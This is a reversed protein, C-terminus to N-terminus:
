SGAANASDRGYYVWLNIDQKVFIFALMWTPNLSSDMFLQFFSSNALVVSNLVEFGIWYLKLFMCALAESFYFLSYFLYMKQSWVYSVTWELGGSPFNWKMVFGAFYVFVSFKVIDSYLNLSHQFFYFVRPYTVYKKRKKGPSINIQTLLLKFKGGSDLLTKNLIFYWILSSASWRFLKMWPNEIVRHKRNEEFSLFTM